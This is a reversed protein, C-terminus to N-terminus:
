SDIFLALASKRLQLWNSVACARVLRTVRCSSPVSLPALPRSPQRLSPATCTVVALPSASALLSPCHLRRCISKWGASPGKVRRGPLLAICRYNPQRKLLANALHFLKGWNITVDDNVGVQVVCVDTREYELLAPLVLAAQISWQAPAPAPSSRAETACLSRLVEACDGRGQLSPCLLGHSSEDSM